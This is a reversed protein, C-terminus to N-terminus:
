VRATEEISFLAQGAEVEAGTAVLVAVIRGSHEARVENFVKMAEITCLLQGAEILQGATVFAPEGPAQQLHVVGYMPAQVPAPGATQARPTAAAPTAQTRVAPPPAASVAPAAGRANRVLRLTWGDHSVEMEDLDSASMADIFAKIQQSDM